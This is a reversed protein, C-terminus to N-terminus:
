PTNDIGLRNATEHEIFEGLLFDETLQMDPNYRKM